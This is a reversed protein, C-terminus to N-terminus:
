RILLEIKVCVVLAVVIYDEFTESEDSTQAFKVERREDTELVIKNGFHRWLITKQTFVLFTHFLLPQVNVKLSNQLLNGLDVLQCSLLVNVLQTLKHHLQAVISEILGQHLLLFSAM